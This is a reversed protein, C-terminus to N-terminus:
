GSITHRKVSLSALVPSYADICRNPPSIHLRPVRLCVFFRTRAWNRQYASILYSAKTKRSLSFPVDVCPLWVFSGVLGENLREGSRRQPDPALEPRKHAVRSKWWTDPRPDQWLRM